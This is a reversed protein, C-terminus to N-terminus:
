SSFALAQTGHRDFQRSSDSFDWREVTCSRPTAVPDRRILNVSNPVNGRVRTSVATGAQVTWIDRSLTPFAARLPRVYPLHIHGGMIIDAGADAWSPVAREHGHILNRTDGDTIALVPQHVVVIRLQERRAHRLRTAVTGVQENSLEGDKHRRPRTTNVGIVLLDPLEVLPELDDGFARSYNAYPRFIRAALNFLPIDHNGPVALLRTPPLQDVFERAAAFQRRRARQTIDGSLVVVDPKQAGALALLAAVVDPQETGFHADSIQLLVTM